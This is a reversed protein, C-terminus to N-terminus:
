RRSLKALLEEERRRHAAVEAEVRDASELAEAREGLQITQRLRALEEAIHTHDSFLARLDQRLAPPFEEILSAPADAILTEFHDTLDRCTKGRPTHVLKGDRDYVCSGGSDRYPNERLPTPRVQQAASLSPVLLTLGIALLTMQWIRLKM